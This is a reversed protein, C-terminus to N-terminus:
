NNADAVVSEILERCEAFVGPLEREESLISVLRTADLLRATQWWDLPLEGGAAQYGQAFFDRFDPSYRRSYRFLSGVDWLASGVGAAEWDIVGSIEWEGARTSKVLINRGGLDGHVLGCTRELAQLLTLRDRIRDALTAGLRERALGSRLQEDARSLRAAIQIPEVLDDPAPLSAIRALLRGLPEALTLFAEPASARRCENLTIGEIWRYVLYPHDCRQGSADALLVEPVPLMSALRSLLQREREFAAPGAAYVRLAYVADERDLAVRYLTNVLGGEVPVAERLAADSLLPSLMAEVEQLGLAVIPYCRPDAIV